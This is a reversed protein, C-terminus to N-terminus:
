AEPVVRVATSSSGGAVWGAGMSRRYASPLAAWRAWRSSAILQGPPRRHRNPPRARGGGVHTHRLGLAPGLWGTSSQRTKMISEKRENTIDNKQLGNQVM